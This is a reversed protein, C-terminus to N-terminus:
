YGFDTSGAFPTSVFPFCGLRSLCSYIALASVAGTSRISGSSTKYGYGYFGIESGYAYGYDDTVSDETAM